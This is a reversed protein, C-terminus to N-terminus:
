EGFLRMSNRVFMNDLSNQSIGKEKLLPLVNRHVYSFDVELNAYDANKTDEWMTFFGTYPAFDHSFFLHDSWGRGCLEFVTQARKELTTAPTTVIGFRDMGLYCGRKLLSELYPINDSDGSHGVVVRNLPLGCREFINLVENGQELEPVTHCFVPLGVKVSVDGTIKLINKIYPTFGPYDVGCKLIGPLIDTDELGGLCEGLLLEYIQGPPRTTLWPDEQHYFGSSAIVNIGSLEAARRIMHIDRGLNIPTGDVITKVGYKKARMLQTVAMKLLLDPECFRNRFAMRMSWDCCSFVHEHILTQGLDKIDIPGLVGNIKM